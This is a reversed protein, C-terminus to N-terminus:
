QVPLVKLEDDQGITPLYGIAGPTNAIRKRMDEETNVELPSQGTGSYVLRDWARRLQYPFVNLIQKCFAIHLPSRDGLVFVTIATGEPWNQLRKSFIARLTNRSIQEQLVTPHVVVEQAHTVSAMTAICILISLAIFTRM